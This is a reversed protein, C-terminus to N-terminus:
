LTGVFARVELPASAVYIRLRVVDIVVAGDDGRELALAGPYCQEVWRYFEDCRQRQADAHRERRLMLVREGLETLQAVFMDPDFPKAFFRAVEGENIANVAREM